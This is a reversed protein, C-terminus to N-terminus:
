RDGEKRVSAVFSFPAEERRLGAFRAAEAEDELERRALAAELSEYEVAYTFRVPREQQDAM